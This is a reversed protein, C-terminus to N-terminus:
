PGILVTLHRAGCLSGPAAPPEGITPSGAAVIVSLLSTRSAIAARAAVIRLLWASRM